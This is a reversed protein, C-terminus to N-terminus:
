WDEIRVGWEERRLEAGCEERRLEAGCEETKKNEQELVVRKKRSMDLRKYIPSNDVFNYQVFLVLNFIDTGTIFTTKPKPKLCILLNINDKVYSLGLATEKM